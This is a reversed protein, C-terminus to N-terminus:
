GSGAHGYGDRLARVTRVLCAAFYILAILLMTASVAAAVLVPLPVASTNGVRLAQRWAPVSEVALVVVIPLAAFYTGVWRMRAWVLEMSEDVSAFWRELAVTLLLAMIIALVPQASGLLLAATGSRGGPALLQAVEFAAGVAAVVVAIGLLRASHSRDPLRLLTAFGAFLLIFPGFQLVGELLFGILVM